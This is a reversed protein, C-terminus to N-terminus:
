GTEAGERGDGCNGRGYRVTAFPAQDADLTVEALKIENGIVELGDATQLWLDDGHVSKRRQWRMGLLGLGPVVTGDTLELERALIAGTSGNALIVKGRAAFQAAAEAGIGRSGGTIVVTKM